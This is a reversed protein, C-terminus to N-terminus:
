KLGGRPRNTGPPCIGVLRLRPILIRLVDDRWILRETDRGFGFPHSTTPIEPHKSLYYSLSSPSIGLRKAILYPGYLENVAFLALVATKTEVFRHNGNVRSPIRGEALWRWASRERGILAVFEKAMIESRFDTGLFAARSERIKKGSPLLLNANIMTPVYREVRARHVHYGATELWAHAEKAVSRVYLQHVGCYNVSDVLIPVNCGPLACIRYPDNM